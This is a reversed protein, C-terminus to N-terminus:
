HVLRCVLWSFFCHFSQIDQVIMIITIIICVPELLKKPNINEKVTHRFTLHPYVPVSYMTSFLKKQICTDM